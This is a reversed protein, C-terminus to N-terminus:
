PASLATRRASSTTSHLSCGLLGLRAFGAFLISKSDTSCVQDFVHIIFPAPGSRHKRAFQGPHAVPQVRPTTEANGSIVTPESLLYRRLYFNAIQPDDARVCTTCALATIEVYENPDFGIIRWRQCMLNGLLREPAHRVYADVLSSRLLVRGSYRECLCYM